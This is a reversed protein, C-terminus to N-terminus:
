HWLNHKRSHYSRQFHFKGLKQVNPLWTFALKGVKATPPHFGPQSVVVQRREEFSSISYHM